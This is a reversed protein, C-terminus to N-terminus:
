HGGYAIRRHVVAVILVTLRGEQDRYLIRHNGVRESLTGFLEGRLMKGRRVGAAIQSIAFEVQRRTKGTLREIQRVAEATYLVAWVTDM